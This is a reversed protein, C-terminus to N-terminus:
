AKPIVAVTIVRIAPVIESLVRLRRLKIEYPEIMQPKVTRINAKIELFLKKENRETDKAKDTMKKGRKLLLSSAIFPKKLSRDDERRVYM